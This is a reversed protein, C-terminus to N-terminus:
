TQQRFSLNTPSSRRSRLLYLKTRIAKMQELSIIVHKWTLLHYRSSKCPVCHHEHARGHTSLVIGPTAMVVLSSRICCRRAQASTKDWAGYLPSNNSPCSRPQTCATQSSYTQSHSSRHPAAIVCPLAHHLAQLPVSSIALGEPRRAQVMGEHQLLRYDTSTPAADPHPLSRLRGNAKVSLKRASRRGYRM